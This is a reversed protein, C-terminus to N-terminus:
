ARKIFPRAGPRQALAFGGFGGGGEVKLAAREQSRAQQAGRGILVQKQEGRMVDDRIAPRGTHQQPFQECQVVREAAVGSRGQGLWGPLIGIESRPLALLHLAVPQPSLEIVPALLQM